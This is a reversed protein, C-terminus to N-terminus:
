AKSSASESAAAESSAAESSAAESTAAESSAAESSTAESSAAPTSSVAESSSADKGGCAVLSLALAAVCAIAIIKSSLKMTLNEKPFEKTFITGHFGPRLMTGTPAPAGRERFMSNDYQNLISFGHLFLILFTVIDVFFSTFYQSFAAKM